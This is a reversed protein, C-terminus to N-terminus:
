VRRTRYRELTGALSAGSSSSAGRAYTLRYTGVGESSVERGSDTAYSYYDSALALAALKLDGPVTTVGYTYTVHVYDRNQTYSTPGSGLVLRGYPNVYYSDTDATTPDGSGRGFTVETVAQVDQHSLFVVPAYDVTETATKTEGFCRGTTSEVHENVADVVLEARGADLTEESNYTTLEEITIVSSM